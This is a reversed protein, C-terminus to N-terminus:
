LSQDPNCNQCLTMQSFGKEALSITSFWHYKEITSKTKIFDDFKVSKCSPKHIISNNDLIVIFGFDSEKIRNFEDVNSIKVM